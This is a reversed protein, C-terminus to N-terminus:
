DNSISYYYNTEESSTYANTYGGNMHVFEMFYGEEPYKESNFFSMHEVFHAMGMIKEDIVGVGVSM